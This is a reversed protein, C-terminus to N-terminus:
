LASSQESRASAAEILGVVDAVFQALVTDGAAILETIKASGHLITTHHRRGLAKAIQPFSLLTLARALHMVVQRARCIPQSQVPSIIELPTVRDGTMISVARVIDVVKLPPTIEFPPRPQIFPKPPAIDPKPDASSKQPYSLLIGRDPPGKLALTRRKVAQYHSILDAASTPQYLM